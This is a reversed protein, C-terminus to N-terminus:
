ARAAAPRPSSRRSRWSATAPTSRTPAPAAPRRATAVLEEADLYGRLPHAPDGVEYSEDAKSRHLSSRDAHTYVAVTQMGLEYAARLARIAIEGRNAVLVKRIM